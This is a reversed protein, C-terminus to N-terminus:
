KAESIRREWAHVPAAKEVVAPAPVTVLLHELLMAVDGAM